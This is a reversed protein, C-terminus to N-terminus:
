EYYFMSPINHVISAAVWSSNDAPTNVHLNAPNSLPIGTFLKSYDVYMHFLEVQDKYVSFNRDPMTRQMLNGNTGIRYVFPQMHAADASASATTDIKGQANVFVYGDPQATNSFWMDPKNLPDNADSSPTKQNTSADLGINFRITKYNGVPVLAIKYTEEEQVKLVVTNPITYVSGDLKVLQINSLYVQGMSLSIKRGESSTTYPINYDDVETDEIYNHIHMQLMGTPTDVTGGNTDEPAPDDSKKKCSTFLQLSGLAMVLFWLGIKNKMKICNPNSYM